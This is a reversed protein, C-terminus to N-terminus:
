VVIQPSVGSAMRAIDGVDRQSGLTRCAEIVADVKAPPLEGAQDRFKQMLEADTMPRAASGRCHEVRESLTRGSSLALGVEAGDRAITVDTVLEIRDRLAVIDPHQLKEPRSQSTGAARDVLTAAAWHQSSTQAQFPNAPHRLDALKLTVPNVRIEIREIAKVDFAHRKGLELCCDIIPHVVVGCPYPKFTNRAIEFRQGLESSLAPLNPEIAYLEAYGNRAGLADAASTFGQEAMVAARLGAQAAEGAMFSFCMSHAAARLGGAQCAAIGIAWALREGDLGMLKGVGVAAGIGSAIGTQVWGIAGRAPAVSVAMSVRCVVECGLTYATLFSAGDVPRTEAFALMASAVPGGPHVVAQEHTDDFSYVSSSMGNVLSALLMDYREARGIATAVAPGSHPALARVATEVSEHRCGGLACGVYNLFTRLVQHGVDQPIDGPKANAVYRALAPTPNDTGGM